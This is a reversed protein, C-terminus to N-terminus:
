IFTNWTRIERLSVLSYLLCFSNDQLKGYLFWVLIQYYYRVFDSFFPIRASFFCIHKHKWLLIKNFLSSSRGSLTNAGYIFDSFFLALFYGSSIITKKHPVVRRKICISQSRYHVLVTLSLHFSTSFDVLSISGLIVYLFATLLLYSREHKKM